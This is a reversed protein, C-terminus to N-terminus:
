KKATTELLAWDKDAMEVIGNRLYVSWYAQNKIFSLRDIFDMFNLEPALKGVSFKFRDIYMGPTRFVPEDDIYYDSIAEGLAIVKYEKTVYCAIKDGRSVKSIVQKRSLGYIGVKICHEMDERPLAILFYKM